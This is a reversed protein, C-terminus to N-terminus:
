EGEARETPEALAPMGVLLLLQPAVIGKEVMLESGAATRGLAILEDPLAELSTPEGMGHKRALTRWFDLTTSQTVEKPQIQQNMHSYLSRVDIGATAAAEKICLNATTVATHWLTYVEAVMDVATSKPMFAARLQVARNAEHLLFTPSHVFARVTPETWGFWDFLPGMHTAYLTRARAVLSPPITPPDAFADARTTTGHLNVRATTTPRDAAKGTM